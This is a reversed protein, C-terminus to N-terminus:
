FGLAKEFQALKGGGEGVYTVPQGPFTQEHWEKYGKMYLDANDSFGPNYEGSALLNGSTSIDLADYGKNVDIGYKINNVTNGTNQLMLGPTLGTKKTQPLGVGKLLPNEFGYVSTSTNTENIAKQEALEPNILANAVGSGASLIGGIGTSFAEARRRAELDALGQLRDLQMEDRREQAQFALGAGRAKAMDVQLQGQAKLRENQVEQKEISAAIGQKSKLAAQALATAGGASAGTARLTDLTNALAIDAQESQMEAAKTAVSMNAYPNTLSAYPNIVDQRDRELEKIRGLFKGQEVKAKNAQGLSMISPVLKAAQMILAGTQDSSLNSLFEGPM